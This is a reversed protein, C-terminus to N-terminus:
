QLKRCLGVTYCCQNWDWINQMSYLLVDCFSESLSIRKALFDMRGGYCRTQMISLCVSVIPNNQWHLSTSEKVTEKCLGFSLWKGAKLATCPSQWHGEFFPPFELQNHSDTVLTPFETLFTTPGMDQIEFWLCLISSFDVFLERDEKLTTPRPGASRHSNGDSDM